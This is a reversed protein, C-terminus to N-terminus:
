FPVFTPTRPSQENETTDRIGEYAFREFSHMCGDPLNTQPESTPITTQANVTGWFTSTVLFLIASAFRRIAQDIKMEGWM